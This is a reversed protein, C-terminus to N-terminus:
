LGNQMFVKEREAINKVKGGDLLHLIYMPRHIVFPAFDLPVEQLVPV